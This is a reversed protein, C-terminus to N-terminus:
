PLRHGKLRDLVVKLGFALYTEPVGLPVRRQVRAAAPRM